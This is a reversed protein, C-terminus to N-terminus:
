VIVEKLNSPTASSRLESVMVGLLIFFLPTVTPVFFWALLYVSYPTTALLVYSGDSRSQYARAVFLALFAFLLTLGVWGHSYAEDALVNHARAYIISGSSVDQEGKARTYYTYGGYWLPQDAPLGLELRFLRKAEAESLLDFGHYAFTEDGWGFVPRQAAGNAAAKWMLLRPQFTYTSAYSKTGAAPLNLTVTAQRTVDPLIFLAAILLALAAAPALPAHRKTKLNLALWVLLGLLVGLTAASTTALALGAFAAGMWLWFGSDLPRNRYFFVPVLSMIAFWGGLHPRHGVLAAPYTMRPSQILAALPRLGISELVTLVLMVATSIQLAVVLPRALPVRSYLWGLCLCGVLMVSGFQLYPAGLFAYGSMPSQSASILAWGGYAAGALLLPSPRSARLVSLLSQGRTVQATYILSLVLVGGLILPLRVAYLRGPLDTAVPAVTLILLLLFLALARSYMTSFSANM